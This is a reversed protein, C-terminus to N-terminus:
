IGGLPLTTPPPSTLILPLKALQQKERHVGATAPVVFQEGGAGARGLQEAAAAHQKEAPGSCDEDRYNSPHGEAGDPCTTCDPRLDHPDSPLPRHHFASDHELGNCGM